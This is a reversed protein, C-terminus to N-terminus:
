NKPGTIFVNKTYVHPERYELRAHLSLNNRTIFSM